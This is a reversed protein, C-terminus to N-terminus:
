LEFLRRIYQNQNKRSLSIKTRTKDALGRFYLRENDFYHFKGFSVIEVLTRIMGRLPVAPSKTIEMSILFDPDSKEKESTNRIYLPTLTKIELEIYGTYRDPHYKDFDPINQAPVVTDNLPVFNYPAKAHQNQNEQNQKNQQSQKQSMSNQNQFLNKSINTTQVSFTKGDEFIVKLIRGGELVFTANQGNYETPIDINQIPTTKGDDTLASYINKGKKNKQIQIKGKKEM